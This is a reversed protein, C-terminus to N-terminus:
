LYTSGSDMGTKEQFEALDTYDAGGFRHLLLADKSYRNDKLTIQAEAEPSIISYVAAGVPSAGFINGSVSLSGGDSPAPIRWLFLHHGMPQPWIESRRPLTEGRMAFGCGARLCVNDAFVSRIPLKDRYEFAAMGYADFRCARCVFNETPVTDKGPGQHTVCSDYISQFTCNEILINNGCQWIEFGNGFRIKRERNWPCGGINLFECGRVTIGSGSGAMGHVGSNMLRIGEFTMGDSLSILCRDGYPVAEIHSYVDAPCGLSYLYLVAPGDSQAPQSADTPISYFDGQECMEEMSWRLTATCENENFVLNGVNGRFEETCKWINERGSPQWHKRESVDVSGCFTPMDGEGYAGYTMHAVAHLRGRVFSGRRFLLCDGDCLPLDTYSRRAREPSLGDNQDCGYAPDIYYISM